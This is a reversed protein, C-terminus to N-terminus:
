EKIFKIKQRETGDTVQMIYTGKAYNGVYIREETGSSGIEIKDNGM